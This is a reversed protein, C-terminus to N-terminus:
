GTVRASNATTRSLSFPSYPHLPILYCGRHRAAPDAANGSWVVESGAVRGVKEFTGAALNVM